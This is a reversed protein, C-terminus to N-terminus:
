WQRGATTAFSAIYWSLHYHALELHGGILAEIASLLMWDGVAVADHQPYRGTVDRRLGDIEARLVDAESDLVGTRRVAAGAITQAIRPLGSRRRVADVLTPGLEDVYQGYRAREGSLAPDGPGVDPIYGHRQYAAAVAVTGLLDVASM